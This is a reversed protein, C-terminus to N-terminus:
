SNYAHTMLKQVATLAQYRVDPDAHTMLQMVQTKAGIEDLARKGNACYKVYQGIDHAAVALVLPSQSTAIIRSLMRLLEHDRDNLKSANQKWFQESLHPPSWELKGSKVESEYEDWTSLNAVSKALEEKLYELDETIDTDSWKRGALTECVNLLKNGIMAAMNEQPAKSLMNRLTAVVVRTVKEKIAAKAIEIFVPVVDFKRQLDAAIERILTLLWLTYIVQYQMQANSSGKKLIGVLSQVANPTQYFPLRYEPVSLLSQLLQVAIDVINANANQLQEAIWVFLETADVKTAADSHILLYTIIKASKLQIYEDDKKLLKFFPRYPLSIDGKQEALRYFINVRGESEALVDDILVLSNQITDARSLKQLLNLFLDIYSDGAENLAATPSKEFQRIQSLEEETILSARQYGEWPITRSRIAVTQDELYKNHSAVIPADISVDSTEEVTPTTM